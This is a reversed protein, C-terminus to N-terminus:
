GLRRRRMRDDPINIGMSIAAFFAETAQRGALTADEFEDFAEDFSRYVGRKGQHDHGNAAPLDSQKGRGQGFGRGM